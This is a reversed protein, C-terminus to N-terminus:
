FFRPTIMKNYKKFLEFRLMIEYSGDNFQSMGLETTERDYAFGIMLSDSIQFGALGSVAASWRYALGFTFKEYLLVNASVDVQLPSGFVLKSLIAPKLKIDQSIDFTYGGILYFNIREEALFSVSASNTTTSEALFHDTELVNPASLGVYFKDTYYYAGAGINPSFKKDVDFVLLNDNDNFLTLERFNVNLFHIGAKLGFSLKGDYSIPITYSFDVNVYTEDAPGIEDNIVSFGLGIKENDGIPTHINFTQTRPAGELGVWQSRHLGVVSLVDRSGAYAPNVSSTNYMYQTFQADQQAYFISPTWWILAIGIFIRISKFMRVEIKNRLKYM